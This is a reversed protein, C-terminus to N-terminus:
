RLSLKGDLPIPAPLPAWGHRAIVENSEIADHGAALSHTCHFTGGDYIERVTGGDHAVVLALVDDSRAIGVAEWGSGFDRELRRRKDEDDPGDYLTVHDCVVVPLAPPVAQLLRERAAPSLELIAYM